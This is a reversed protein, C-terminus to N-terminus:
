EAYSSGGFIESPDYYGSEGDEDSEEVVEGLSGDYDERTKVANILRRTDGYGQEVLVGALEHGGAETLSIGKMAREVGAEQYSWKRLDLKYPRGNWSVRRLNISTNGSEEIIYDFEPDKDMTIEKSNDRAM